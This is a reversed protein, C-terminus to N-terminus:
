ASEKDGHGTTEKFKKRSEREENREEKKRKRGNKKM